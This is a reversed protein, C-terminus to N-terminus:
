FRWDVSAELRHEPNVTPGWDARIADREDLFYRLRYRSQLSLGAGLRARLQLWGEVYSEGRYTFESEADYYKFRASLLLPPALRATVSLWAYHDHAFNADYYTSLLGRVPEPYVYARETVEADWLISKYFAMIQVGEVVRLRLQAWAAVRAGAGVDRQQVGEVDTSVDDEYKEDRGGESLDKDTYDVGFSLGLWDLPTVDFRTRLALSAYDLSPRYWVDLDVRTQLWDLPRATVRLNGGAEDRDRQGMYEDAAAQGRAHPNDFDSEYYRGSMELDVLPWALILRLLAADGGHATRAYEGRLSFLDVRGQLDVGYAGFWGRNPYAASPVFYLDDSETWDLRAGYGTLGVTWDLVPSWAARAGFVLETFAWRLTESTFRGRGEQACVFPDVGAQCYLPNPDGTAFYASDDQPRLRSDVDNQNVAYPWYSVFGVLDLHGGGLRLDRLAGAAGFLRENLGFEGTDAYRSVLADPYFGDPEARSTEDFVLGEAFGVQYSGLVFGWREREMAVYLKPVQFRPANPAASLWTLGERHHYHFPGPAEQVLLAAGVEVQDAWRTYPRLLFAPLRGDEFRELVDLRLSGRVLPPKRYRKAVRAFPAVQAVVDEPLGALALDAVDTFKTEARYRVIADVMAYTVGPLDYLSRRSARNLDLPRELLRVLRQYVEEDIDGSELLDRLDEEDDVFIPVEYLEALAPTSWLAALLLCILGALSSTGRGAGRREGM